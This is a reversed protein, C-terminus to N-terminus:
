QKDQEEGKKEVTKGREERRWKKSTRGLIGCFHKYQATLNILLVEM